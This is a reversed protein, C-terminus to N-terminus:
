RVGALRRVPPRVNEKRLTNKGLRLGPFFSILKEKLVTTKYFAAAGPAAAKKM